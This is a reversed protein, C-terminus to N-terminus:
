KNKKQNAARGELIISGTTGPSGPTKIVPALEKPSEVLPKAPQTIPPTVVSPPPSVPVDPAAPTVPPKTDATVPPKPAPKETAVPQTKADLSTVDTGTYYFKVIDKYTFEPHAKALGNAGYTCLGVGHGYGKGMITYSGNPNTVMSIKTSRLVDGGFIDRLQLGSIKASGSKYTVLITKVRGSQNYDLIEMKQFDGLKQSKKKNFIKVLEEATFTKSWNHNPADACYDELNEGDAISQLYPLPEGGLAADENSQTKGGCDTSYLAHIPAGNYTIIQNRTDSLIKDVWEAERSVGSFMQCHTSDCVNYFGPQHRKGNTLAYSRIALAIAKQAEVNFSAPVEAPLVGRVYDEMPIENVVTMNSATSPNMEIIGSYKTYASQPATIAFVNLNNSSQLKVAGKTIGYSKGMIITEIGDATRNFTAQENGISAIIQNAKVDIIDAASSSAISVSPVNGISFNLGVRITEASKEFPTYYNVPDPRLSIVFVGKDIRGTTDTKALLATLAKSIPTNKIIVSVTGTVGKDCMYGINTGKLIAAAAALIPVDKLEVSVPKNLENIPAAFLNCATLTFTFVLTIYVIKKLHNM